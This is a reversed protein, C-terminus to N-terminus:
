EQLGFAHGVEKDVNQPVIDDGFLELQMIEDHHGVMEM